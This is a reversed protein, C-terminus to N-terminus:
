SHNPVEWWKDLLNKAKSAATSCREIKSCPAPSTSSVTVLQSSLALMSAAAPSELTLYKAQCQKQRVLVFELAFGAGMLEAGRASHDEGVAPHAENVEHGRHYDKRVRDLAHGDELEGSRLQAQHWACMRYDRGSQKFRRRGREPSLREPKTACSPVFGPCSPSSPSSKPRNPEPFCFNGVFVGDVGQWREVGQPSAAQPFIISEVSRAAL